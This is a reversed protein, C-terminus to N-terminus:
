IKETRGVKAKPSIELQESYQVLDIECGEGIAVIRGSVRPTRINELAITDAEISQKVVVTNAIGPLLSALLPLRQVINKSQREPCILVKSGGISGLEMGGSFKIVIEEANLLGTCNIRGSVTVTEAEVDGGASIGGSIKISSGKISGHVKGGGSCRIKEDVTLNGGCSFAGSIGLSGCHVDKTFKCSGSVKMEDRCHLEEGSASGSISFSQCRVLGSLAGSGSIKINEYDGPAIQGSGSIKMDM